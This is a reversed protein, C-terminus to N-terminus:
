YELSIGVRIIRPSSFFNNTKTFYENELIRLSRYSEGYMQTALEINESKSDIYPTGTELLVSYYNNADFLNAIELFIDLNVNNYINLKKSLKLDVQAFNETSAEVLSSNRDSTNSAYKFKYGSHFNHFLSIYFDNISYNIFTKSAIDELFWNDEISQYVLNSSIACGPFPYLNIGFEIGQNRTITNNTITSYPTYPSNPNTIIRSTSNSNSLNNNYASFKLQMNESILYEVGLQLIRSNYIELNSYPSALLLYSSNIINRISRVGRYIESLKPLYSNSKYNIYFKWNYDHDYVINFYPNIALDIDNKKLGESYIERVQYATEPSEPNKLLWNDLEFYDVRTGFTINFASYQFNDDLYLGGVIPSLPANFGSENTSNGLLDYGYNNINYGANLIEERLEKSDIDGSEISHELVRYLSKQDDVAWHRIVSSQFNTGFQINHKKLLIYLVHFNLNIRDELHKSYDVTIDNESNFNYGYFNHKVPVFWTEPAMANNNWEIEKNKNALSSGYNWYDNKLFPDFTEEFSHFYSFNINYSLKTSLIHKVSLSLQNQLKETKGFRDNLINLIPQENIELEDKQFLGMASFSLNDINFDIKSILNYSTASNNKTPGAPIVLNLTDLSQDFGGYQNILEVGKTGSFDQQFRDRIHLYNANILLNLGSFLHGMLNFNLEENGYQFAGLTKNGNFFQDTNKFTLNDSSFEVSAFLERKSDPLSFNINTPSGNNYQSHSTSNLSISSIVAKPIRFSLTGNYNDTISINDISYSIANQGIGKSYIENGKYSIGPLYKFIDKVNRQPFIEINNLYSNGALHLTDKANHVLLNNNNQSFLNYHFLIFIIFLANKM